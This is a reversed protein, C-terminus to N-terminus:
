KANALAHVVPTIAERRQRREEIDEPTKPQNPDASEFLSAYAFLCYGDGQDAILIQRPAQQPTHKYIGIGPTIPRGRSESLWATLDSQLQEDDDTYIMPLARDILGARLWAGADQLYTNRAIEPRRWVAASLEIDPDATKVAQRIEAVLDTIHNRVWARFAQQEAETVVGRAGTDQMFRTVTELDGPYLGDGLGYSVFRIYDLHIGDVDYRAAIDAFVDVIHAHVDPRTPNVIVYSDNLQQLNGQTDELRWDSRQNYPHERDLPPETGRWFPMVNGWAHIRMGQAHASRVALALPDFRPPKGDVLIMEGWPELESRYYADCQGRVQWFVDTVGLDAAERMIRRVDAETKYDWRTVWLGRMPEPPTARPATSIFACGRQLFLPLVAVTLLALWLAVVARPTWARNTRADM